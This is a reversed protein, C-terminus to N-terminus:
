AVVQFQPTIDVVWPNFNARCIPPGRICQPPEVILSTLGQGQGPRLALFNRGQGQPDLGQGQGQPDLGQGQGQPDCAKAKLTQGQVHDQDLGFGLSLNCNKCM